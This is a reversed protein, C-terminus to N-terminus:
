LVEKRRNKEILRQAAEEGLTKRTWNVLEAEDRMEKEINNWFKEKQLEEAEAQEHKKRKNENIENIFDDLAKQEDKQKRDAEDMFRYVSDGYRKKVEVRKENEPLNQFREM